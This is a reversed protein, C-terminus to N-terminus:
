DGVGVVAGLEGLQFREPFQRLDRPPVVHLHHDFARAVDRHLEDFLVHVLFEFVAELRREVREARQGGVDRGAVVVDRGGDARGLDAPVAGRHQAVDRGLFMQAQGVLLVHTVADDGVLDGRVGGVEGLAM